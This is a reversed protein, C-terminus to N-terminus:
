WLSTMPGQSLGTRGALSRLHRSCAPGLPTIILTTQFTSLPSGLSCAPPLCAILSFAQVRPGWTPSVQYVITLFGTLCSTLPRQRCPPHHSPSSPMRPYSDQTTPPSSLM